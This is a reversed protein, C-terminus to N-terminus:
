LKSLPVSLTCWVPPLEAPPFPVNLPGAPLTGPAGDSSAGAPVPMGLAELVQKELRVVWFGGTSTAFWITGSKADFKPHGWANDLRVEDDPSGDENTYNAVDGPNFYAIERPNAPDRIDVVRMGANQMSVIAIKANESSDFEHYHTSAQVGSDLQAQCNEQKNIALSFKSVHMQPEAPNSVNSFSPEAVGAFPAGESGLCGYAAGFVSEEAHMVWEGKGAISTKTVSHGRGNRQGLVVPRQTQDDLWPQIDLITFVEFPKVTGGMYLRNGEFNSWVQHATYDAKPKLVVDQDLDAVPYVGVLPYDTVDDLNGLFRMGTTPNNDFLGEISLVQNPSTAFVYKGNGSITLNHINEPFRFGGKYLPDECQKGTVDYIHMLDNGSVQGPGTNNGYEGVVLISHTIPGGQTARADIAYITELSQTTAPNDKLTRVHQPNAPDRVNIVALGNPDDTEPDYESPGFVTGAGSVYACHSAWAMNANGTPKRGDADLVERAVLELGCNYGAEARSMGDEGETRHALPVDGQLQSPDASGDLLEGEPLDNEGCLPGQSAPEEARADMILLSSMIAVVAAVIGWRRM